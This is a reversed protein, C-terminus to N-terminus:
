SAAPAPPLYPLAYLLAILPFPSLDPQGPTVIMRACRAAYVSNFTAPYCTMFETYISPGATPGLAVPWGLCNAGCNWFTTDMRDFTAQTQSGPMELLAAIQSYAFTELVLHAEPSVAPDFKPDDVGLYRYNGHQVIEYTEENYVGNALTQYHVDGTVQFLRAEALGMLVNTNKVYRGVDNANTSYWFMFCSQCSPGFSTTGSPAYNAMASEAATLYASNQTATYMDLLAWSVLATQFGYIQNAPNITKDGFADWAYPLGWGIKGDSELADNQVFYDAIATALTLYRQSRAPDSVAFVQASRLLTEDDYALSSFSGNASLHNLPDSSVIADAGMAVVDTATVTSAGAAFALARWPSAVLVVCVCLAGVLIM